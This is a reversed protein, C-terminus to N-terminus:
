SFRSGVSLKLLRLREDNFDQPFELARHLKPARRSPRELGMAKMQEDKLEYIVYLQWKRLCKTKSTKPVQKLSAPPMNMFEEIKKKKDQGPCLQGETHQIHSAVLNLIEWRNGLMPM